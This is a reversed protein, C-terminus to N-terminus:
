EDLLYAVTYQSYVYWKQEDAFCLEYNPTHVINEKKQLIAM